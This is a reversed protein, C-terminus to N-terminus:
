QSHLGTRIGIGIRVKTGDARTLIIFRDHPLTSRDREIRYRIEVKPFDKALREFMQQQALSTRYAQRSPQIEAALTSITARTATESKSIVLSLYSRLRKEHHDSRLYRDNIDIAILPSNFIESFLQSETVQEGEKIRRIRVGPPPELESAAIHRRPMAKMAAAIVRVGDPHFTTVMGADGARQDLVPKADEIRMARCRSGAPDIVLHWFPFKVTDVANLQLGDQQVLLHLHNRLGLTDLNTRDPPPIEGLMLSAQVGRRLLEQLIELWSRTEGRPRERTIRQVTILLEQEASSIQQALWRPKDVAGVHAAGPAVNDLDEPFTETIIAELFRAVPGRRMEEWYIQNDYNRLCNPCSTEEECEACQAVKLADRLVTELNDAIRRVHGAGGPVNDFLVIEQSFNEEPNQTMAVPFPRVVGDLDRREIQLGLSSGELLSYTLSRWFPLDRGSPIALGPTSEFRLHLTDSSFAHGLHYQASTGLCKKEGWPTDHGPPSQSKRGRRSRAPPAQTGCRECLWFGDPDAGSNVAVLQGDRRYAFHIQPGGHSEITQETGQGEALLFSRSRNTGYDVHLGAERLSATLDTTFGDPDVYRYSEGPSYDTCIRCAGAIPLGGRESRQLDRCTTCIRYEFSNLEQRIVVGVSKWIHKDAVVEAGPAYEVIAIKKDRELRLSQDAYRDGRYQRDEPLRLNVVDIPFSYSPLIGERCLFDILSEDLLRQRLGKFRRRMRESSQEESRDHSTNAIETYHDRLREYEILWREFDTCLSLLGDTLRNICADPTENPADANEANFQNVIEVLEEGLEGKWQPISDLHRGTPLNPAFFPGSGLLDIRGQRALYRLFHGLLMANLHRGSIIRNTVLLNPVAVEGAIIRIPNAFYLRDHPRAAAYTLIFATGGARRGARGARQRYNAVTPPVNNLVVTQLEGVDVGLEFTTSCSLINIDGGIFQDQYIRGLAPQLQATHEEVRMGIPQRHFIARYHDESSPTDPDFTELAGQCGRSPCLPLTESLLRRTLKLCKNCRHWRDSTVFILRAVNIQYAANEGGVFVGQKHLWDWIAQLANQVNLPEALRRTARLIRQVYDFRAQRESAGVWNREYGDLTAATLRYRITATNRGFAEDNSAVDQPMTVAKDLRMSDLLAQIATMMENPTLGFQSCLSEDPMVSQAFHVDCGVLGLAGLSHRPDIRACFEAAIRARATAMRRRHESPTTNRADEGFIGYNKALAVCYEALEEMDPVRDSENLEQAARAVLHRYLTDNVTALLYAAYRAAGQRSDTFALLKRGEGPKVRIAPDSSPPTERYLEETIVALPASRALRVSTVIENPTRAMCRPCTFITELPNGKSDSVSYLTVLQSGSPCTCTDRHRCILCVEVGQTKNIESAEVEENGSEPDPEVYLPRWTFYRQGSVDDEYRGESSLTHEREFARLYPQGCNRCVALEFVAGACDACRERKELYVRSWGEDGGIGDPCRPNVCLWVGQPGRAFLHYRAPLLPITDISERALAGLEVLSCVAETSAGDMGNGEFLTGGIDELEIPRDEMMTRLNTIHPNTRLLAWLFRGVDGSAEERAESIRDGSAVGSDNLVQVLEDMLAPSPLNEKALCERLRDRLKQKRFGEAIESYSTVTPAQDEEESVGGLSVTEGFIVDEDRFEEGFLHQAFSAAANVDDKTLTASTAICRVDGRQKKLRHKLRRLLMSVEIGQAGAYTHAEDLCLFRWLGSEFIPSDEPRLLLYELMAYNTILIHPPKPSQGRYGRMVERSVVENMPADPSKSRGRAEDNELESTYRGFTIDTGRLLRRLRLLQDNVLANMPYIILARVGPAPDSLLDHLIPILFCETKGSGTGSAIVVNRQDSLIRRVAREQHAYLERDPPLPRDRPPNIDERLQCLKDTVVSESALQRLTATRTYPPNLELFPGRFLVGPAEFSRRIESALGPNSRGVNFTTLLYRIFSHRVSEAIHIANM